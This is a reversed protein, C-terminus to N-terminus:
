CGDAQGEGRMFTEENEKLWDAMEEHQDARLILPAVKQRKRPAARSCSSQQTVPLSPVSSAHRDESEAKSPASDSSSPEPTEERQKKQRLALKSPMRKGGEPPM